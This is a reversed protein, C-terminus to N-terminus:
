RGFFAKRQALSEPSYLMANAQNKRQANLIQLQTELQKYAEPNKLRTKLDILGIQQEVDKIAKITADYGEALTPQKATMASMPSQAVPATPKVAAPTAKAQPATTAAPMAPAGFTAGNTSPTYRDSFISAPRAANAREAEIKKMAEKQADLRQMIDNENLSQEATLTKPNFNEYTWRAEPVRGANLFYKATVADNYINQPVRSIAEATRFKNNANYNQRAIEQMMNEQTTFGSTVGSNFKAWDVLGKQNAAGLENTMRKDDLGYANSPKTYSQYLDDTRQEQNWARQNADFERMSMEKRREEMARAERAKMYSESFNDWASMPRTAM